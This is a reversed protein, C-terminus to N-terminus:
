LKEEPPGIYHTRAYIFYWVLSIAGFGVLVVSAYNMSVVTVPLVTPMCFLVLEFLIWLLSVTNVAWGIAPPCKFVAKNVEKRGDIMSQAIPVGYSLALAVVGVSIFATFASSSGLNILGLLLQVITVLVLSWVPVKLTPHVKAFWRAGPIADDRAFAWTCRSAAVTISISCFVTVVLVLFTLGLGGGPAGMVRAFIYPLAQGGTSYTVIDLLPPLTACIPIIFFLGAISGIPVALAMAQPLKIAADNCEEAMSTIMGIASFTYAAPLLGIFWTFGGYGALSKDYAGLADAASHRGADAKVSLAILCVLITLVTWAACATDVYPLFRNLFCCIVFTGLCIAYFILLLQWPTAAFDPHYLTICANILTAFGFNVSLTSPSPSSILIPPIYFLGIRSVNDLQWDALGLRYCLCGPEQEEEVASLELVASRGLYAVSFGTRGLQNRRV